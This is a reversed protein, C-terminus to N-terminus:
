PRLTGDAVKKGAEFAEFSLGNDYLQWPTTCLITGTATEGPQVLQGAKPLHFACTHLDTQGAFRLQPSWGDAVPADQRLTLTAPVAHHTTFKLTRVATPPAVASAPKANTMTQQETAHAAHALVLACAAIAARSLTPKM